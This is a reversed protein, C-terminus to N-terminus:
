SKEFNIIVLGTTETIQAFNCFIVFILTFSGPIPSIGYGPDKIHRPVLLGSGGGKDLPKLHVDASRSMFLIDDEFKM